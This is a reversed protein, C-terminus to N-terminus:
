HQPLTPREELMDYQVLLNDKNTTEWTSPDFCIYSGGECTNTKVLPEKNDVRTLWLRLERHYFWGRNYLENAAYLQAEDNPMSFFVYFLTDMSFKLFYSESLAPPQKAHYCQPVTFEPDGMAPEDSWPSGFTESLNKTSDLNLGRTTLDIGLALSRLDPDRIRSLLGLFGFSDSAAQASQMSKVGQDTYSQNLGSRQQMQFQSQNQHQQDYSVMGSVTNPSNLLRLGIGPPGSTQSHYSSHSSQLM